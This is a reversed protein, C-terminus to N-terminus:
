LCKSIEHLRAGGNSPYYTVNHTALDIEIRDAIVVDNYYNRVYLKTDSYTFVLGNKKKDSNFMGFSTEYIDSKLYFGFGSVKNYAFQGCYYNDNPFHYCGFGTRDNDYFESVCCSDDDLWIIFGYGSTDYTRDGQRVYIRDKDSYTYYDKYKYPKLQMNTIPYTNNFNLNKEIITKKINYGNKFLDFSLVGDKYVIAKNTSLGNEYISIMFSSKSFVHIVNKIPTGRNALGFKLDCPIFSMYPGHIVDNNYFGIHSYNSADRVMSFHNLKGNDFNFSTKVENTYKNGMIGFGTPINNYDLSGYYDYGKYNSLRGFKINAM